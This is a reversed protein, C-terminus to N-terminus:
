LVGETTRTGLLRELDQIQDRAFAVPTGDRMPLVELSRGRGDPDWCLRYMLMGTRRLKAGDGVTRM